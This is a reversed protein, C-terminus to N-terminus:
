LLSKAFLFHKKFYPQNIPEIVVKGYASSADIMLGHGIYIGVHGPHHKRYTKFFLLDGPKLNIALKGVHAQESATRPLKIGLKDFVKMTFGSCDIGYRSTGGFRYPTGLYQKAIEILKQVLKKDFKDSAIKKPIPQKGVSYRVLESITQPEKLEVKSKEIINLIPDKYIDQGYKHYNIIQRIPSVFESGYAVNFALVLSALIVGVYKVKKM